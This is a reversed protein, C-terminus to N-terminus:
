HARRSALAASAQRWLEGVAFGVGPLLLFQTFHIRATGLRTETPERQGALQDLAASALWRARGERELRARLDTGALSGYVADALLFAQGAARGAGLQQTREYLPELDDCRQLLAAFDTIWKLRFWASSAGHVALYAILEDRALTPLRQGALVEVEQRPSHVDIRPILARNDALRTHLEVHLDGSTWVSEKHRRHWGELAVKRAPLVQRYGRARLLEAARGLQKGDILLDIDWGMKLMPNPYALAGVTLGKVFLLDLGAADFASRLARSEVAIALNTIAISEADSSLASGVEPPADVGASRLGSSVLGQVRHFRVVDLFRSWDTRRALEPDIGRGVFTQRCCQAALQLELSKV